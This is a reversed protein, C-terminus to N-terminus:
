VTGGSLGLAASIEAGTLEGWAYLLLVDREKAPLSALADALFPALTHALVVDENDAGLTPPEHELRAELGLLQQERRWNSRLLVSAIGFLWPRVPGRSPDFHARRRYAIAFTEAALDDARSSGVSTALFRHIAPFHEVFAVEFLAPDVISGGM